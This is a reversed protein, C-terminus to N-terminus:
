TAAGFRVIRDRGASKAEYCAQDVRSLMTDIDVGPAVLVAGISCTISVVQGQWDFREVRIASCLKEAIVVVEDASNVDFLAVLFEEGGWRACADYDRITGRLVRAVASLLEDGAAHGYRDNVSKFYDLDIQLLGFSRDERRLRNMEGLLRDNMGRRNLLGTLPDSNAMEQLEATREAVQRRLDETYSGVRAAMSVFARTLRGIEDRSDDALTIAYRGASVEATAEDLRALRRMVVRQVFVVALLVVVVLAIALAFIGAPLRTSSSAVKPNILSVVFWRVEPIWSLAALQRQGQLTLVLSHAKEGGQMLEHMTKELEAVEQPSSLLSALTRQLESTEVKRVSAFDILSLDRHAQIAGREDIILNASKGDANRVVNLIFDSLDLGTGTVAVARGEANRVVTNIWVRTIGLHRDTDVNLQVDKVKRLTAYFWGDKLNREELTYRPRESHGSKDDNYYYHGSDAMAFFYSRSRFFQRYDELETLARQRRGPDSEKAVWEKLLPSSAMKQALTVERTVLSLLQAKEFLANREVLRQGLASVVDDSYWVFFRYAAAGGLLFIVAFLLIFRRHLRVSKDSM